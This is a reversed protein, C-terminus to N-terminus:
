WQDWGRNICLRPGRRRRLPACFHRRVAIGRGKKQTCPSRPRRLFAGGGEGKQGAGMRTCHPPAPGSPSMRVLAGFPLQAGGANRTLVVGPRGAHLVGAHGVKRTGRMCRGMHPVAHAPPVCFTPRAPTKCTSWGPTTSVGKGRDHSQECCPRRLLLPLPHTRDPPHACGRKHQLLPTRSKSVGAGSQAGKGKRLSPAYSPCCGQWGM